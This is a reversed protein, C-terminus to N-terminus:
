RGKVEKASSLQTSQYLPLEESKAESPSRNLDRGPYLNKSARETSAPMHQSSVDILSCGSGELDKGLLKEAIFRCKFAIPKITQSASLM